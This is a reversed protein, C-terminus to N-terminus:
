SSSIAALPFIKAGHSIKSLMVATFSSNVAQLRAAAKAWHNHDKKRILYDLLSLVPHPSKALANCDSGLIATTIESVNNVPKRMELLSWSIGGGLESMLTAEQSAQYIL